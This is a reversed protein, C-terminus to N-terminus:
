NINIFLVEIMSNKKSSTRHRLTYAKHAKKQNDNSDENQINKSM